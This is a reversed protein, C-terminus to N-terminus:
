SNIKLLAEACKLIHLINIGLPTIKITKRYPFKREKHVEILNLKELEKVYKKLTTNCGKVDKALESFLKPERSLAELIKVTKTNYIINEEM